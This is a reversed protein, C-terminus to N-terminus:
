GKISVNEKQSDTRKNLYVILCIFLVLIFFIGAAEKLYVLIGMNRIDEWSEIFLVILLVALISGIEKKLWSPRLPLYESIETKSIYTFSPMIRPVKKCYDRYEQPFLLSLKCEEKSILLLYRLIFFLLFICLTWLKFLLLIIGLGILFIGLYMPNRVLTYPGGQILAQGNRSYESKYGRASARLTQGFLIFVIGFTELIHDFFTFRDPRLFLAPFAVALLGACVAIVGNIKLRRKM